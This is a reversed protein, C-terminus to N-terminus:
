QRNALPRCTRLVKGKDEHNVLCSIGETAQVSTSALGLCGIDLATDMDM